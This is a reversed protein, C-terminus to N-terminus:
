WSFLVWQPVQDDIGPTPRQWAMDGSGDQDVLYYPAGAAPTIKVMYLQNNVRYEEVVRNEHERLTVAPEIDSEHVSLDLGSPTRAAAPGAALLVALLPLTIRSTPTM